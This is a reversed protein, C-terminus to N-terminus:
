VQFPLLALPPVTSVGCWCAAAFKVRLPALLDDPQPAPGAPASNQAEPQASMSDSANFIQERSSGMSAAAAAASLAALTQQYAIQQLRLLLAMCPGLDQLSCSPGMCDLVAAEIFPTHQPSGLSLQGLLLASAAIHGYSCFPQSDLMSLECLHMALSLVSPTVCSSCAQALLHLFTYTSPGNLHFDLVNLIIREM